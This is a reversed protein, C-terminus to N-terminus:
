PPPPLPCPPHGLAAHTATRLAKPNDPHGTLKGTVYAVAPSPTPPHAEKDPPIVEAAPSRASTTQAPHAQGTDPLEAPQSRTM